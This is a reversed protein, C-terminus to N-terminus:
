FPWCGSKCGLNEEEKVKGPEWNMKAMNFNFEDMDGCREKHQNTCAQCTWIRWSKAESLSWFKGYDTYYSEEQITEKDCKICFRERLAFNNELLDKKRQNREQDLKIQNEDTFLKGCYKCQSKSTLIAGCSDCNM